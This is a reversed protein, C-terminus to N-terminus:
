NNNNNNDVLNRLTNKIKNLADNSNYEAQLKRENAWAKFGEMAAHGTSTLDDGGNIEFGIIRKSDDDHDRYRNKLKSIAKELEKTPLKGTYNKDQGLVIDKKAM